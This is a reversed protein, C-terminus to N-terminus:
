SAYKIADVDTTRKDPAGLRGLRLIKSRMKKAILGRTRRDQAAASFRGHQYLSLIERLQGTHQPWHQSVRAIYATPTEHSSPYVGHRSFKGQLRLWQKVCPDAQRLISGPLLIILAWLVSVAALIL